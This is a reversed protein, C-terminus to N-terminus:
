TMCTRCGNNVNKLNYNNKLRVKLRFCLVSSCPNSLIRSTFCTDFWFVGLTYIDSFVGWLPTFLGVQIFMHNFNSILNQSSTALIIYTILLTVAVVSITRRTATSRCPIVMKRITQSCKYRRCFQYTQINWALFKLNCSLAWVVANNICSTKYASCCHM